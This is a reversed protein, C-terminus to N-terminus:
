PDLVQLVKIDLEQLELADTFSNILLGPNSKIEDLLKQKVQEKSEGSVLFSDGFKVQVQM